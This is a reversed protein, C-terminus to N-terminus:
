TTWRFIEWLFKLDGRMQAFVGRHNHHSPDLPQGANRARYGSIFKEGTHDTEPWTGALLCTMSWRIVDLLEDVTGPAMRIYPCVFIPYRRATGICSNWTCALVKYKNSTRVTQVDDGHLGIPIFNNWQDRFESVPHRKMWEQGECHKWYEAPTTDSGLLESQGQSTGHAWITAFMEHPLLM